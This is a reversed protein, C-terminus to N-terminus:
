NVDLAPLWYLSNSHNVKVVSNKMMSAKTLGLANMVIIRQLKELQSKPILVTSRSADETDILRQIINKGEMLNAKASDQLQQLTMKSEANARDISFEDYSRYRPFPVSMFIGFRNEYVQKEVNENQIVNQYLGNNEFYIM